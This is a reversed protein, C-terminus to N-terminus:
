IRRNPLGPDTVYGMGVAFTSYGVAGSDKPDNGVTVTGAWIAPIRATAESAVSEEHGADDTFSVLVKITKSADGVEVDYTSQAAGEIPEDSTGDGSVWQYAFTVNSLGDDDLIDSTSATLTGGVRATGSITPQGNARRNARAAVSASATSTLTEQNDRDDTFSVRVKITKGEDSDRLTYTSSTAGDIETDRSSLWQYTFVANTLGDADAIDSTNVTLTEGVQATGDITPGGTATTNSTAVAPGYVTFEVRNSLKKEDPTCIAAEAECDTTPPLIISVDGDGAPKVTIEWRANNRRELRRANTVDGETVTFAHDRLSRYSLSKKPEESFRLEFTFATHGDHSHPKDHAEATLPSPAAEVEGTAESILSEEYGGGDTFSVRVKITKGEDSDTLTYTSSTAGDIATERSSLWQYTFVANMLGNADAIDSTNATLTEGVQATGDITPVGSAAINPEAAVAPTAASTLTEQNDRDDTFSVRVKVVKGEDSDTLTYTSSTAGAIETDRSSLWQYTFVANTLGDADAIGSTDATLTEGVESTGTITPSGTAPNNTPAGLPIDKGAIFKHTGSTPYQTEGTYYIGIPETYDTLDTGGFLEVQLTDPWWHRLCGGRVHADMEWRGDEPVTKLRYSYGVNGVHCWPVTKGPGGDGIVRVRVVYDTTETDSDPVLGGISLAFTTLTRNLLTSQKTGQIQVDGHSVPPDPYLAKIFKVQEISTDEEDSGNIFFHRRFTGAYEYEQDEYDYRYWPVYLQYTGAPCLNFITGEDTYTFNGTGDDPTVEMSVSDALGPGLCLDNAERTNSNGLSDEIQYIHFGFKYLQSDVSRKIGVEVGIEGSGGQEISSPDDCEEIPLNVIHVNYSDCTVTTGNLSFTFAVEIPVVATAPSTLSEVSGKDDTFNVRLRIVKDVDAATVTYTASTADDIELDVGRGGTPVSTFPLGPFDSPTRGHGRIWQYSYSVNDLGDSDIIGSTDATLTEGVEPTGAITLAGTAPINAKVTGTAASTLSEEYGADDIFTVRLKVVENAEPAQLTYAPSTAGEIETGRGSLWQYEFTAWYLGDADAIGSTDATLTQGVQTTGAITPVGAAANNPEPGVILASPRLSTFISRNLRGVGVDNIARVHYEYRTGAIVDRDAWRTVASNTNEVYVQYGIECQEPIRRLIQYGTVEEEPAAWTLGIGGNIQTSVLNTPTGYPTGPVGNPWWVHLRYQIPTSTSSVSGLGDSNIGRVSYSYIAGEAVDTDVFTTADSGTNNVLVEMLSTCMYQWPAWLGAPEEKRLIQYGTVTGVPAQWNLELGKEEGESWGDEGQSWRASLNSPAGLEGSSSRAAVAATASSTLTEVSAGDDTFSVRVRITKGEDADTLTYSSDTADPIESDSTGDGRIWQYSFTANTLGDADSIGSTDVTLTEGVQVSGLIIPAGTAPNNPAPGQAGTLGSSLQFLIVTLLLVLGTGVVTPIILRRSAPATIM